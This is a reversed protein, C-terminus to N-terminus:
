RCALLLRNRPTIEAPITQTWVRYGRSELRVVRAADIALARDMWGSFSGADCAGFDHCCPMLALRAGAASAQDIVVDSLRGCAHSSVVLDDRAIRVSALDGELFTVRGALRPWVATLAEHVRAACPPQSKDIAIAAPSSDDLILLVQALLGHGSGLDVVRGGRFLRRARRAVEWAEYLEKRPLCGAECVARGIRDFVGGGAFRDRDRGTLRGRSGPAFRM